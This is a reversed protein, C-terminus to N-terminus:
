TISFGQQEPSLGSGLGKGVSFGVHDIVGALSGFFGLPPEYTFEEVPVGWEKGLEDLVTRKSGIEDALGNKVAESGLFIFGDALARVDSVNMKRNKAVDDVFFDYILTIKSQLAQRERDTLPKFPSGADKLDGAVLRQYTVNYDKLTGSFDLYSGLVGISGTISLEDVVIKNASSAVWYAGSVGVEGVVAIVQKKMKARKVADVIRKSAVPSGGPSEIDLIIAKVAEDGTADDIWSVVQDAGVVGSWPDSGGMMIEGLIPVVAVNGSDYSSSSFFISVFLFGILVAFLVNVFQGFLVFGDLVRRWLPKEVVPQSMVQQRSVCNSPM